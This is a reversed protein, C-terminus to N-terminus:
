PLDPTNPAYGFSLEGSVPGAHAGRLQVAPLPGNPTWGTADPTFAAGNIAVHLQYVQGSNSMLRIWADNGQAGIAISCFPGGTTPYGPLTSLNQWVITGGTAPGRGGYAVGNRIAAGFQGNSGPM